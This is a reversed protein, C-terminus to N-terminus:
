LTCEESATIGKYLAMTTTWNSIHKNKTQNRQTQVQLHRVAVYIQKNFVNM